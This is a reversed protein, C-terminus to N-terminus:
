DVFYYHLNQYAKDVCLVQLFQLETGGIHVATVARM